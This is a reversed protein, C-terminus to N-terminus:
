KLTILLLKCRNSEDAIDFNRKQYYLIVKLTYLRHANSMVSTRM